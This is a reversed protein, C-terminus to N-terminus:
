GGVTFPASWAHAGWEIRLVGGKEGDQELSYRVTSAPETLPEHSLEIAPGDAEPDHQTGWIDPKHNFRLAWGEATKQLWLSYVGPYNEAVNETEITAEGFVLPVETKMKTAFDHTYRVIEGPQLTSLREYDEGEAKTQSFQISVSKEGFSLKTTDRNAEAEDDGGDSDGEAAAASAAKDEEAQEPTLLAVESNFMNNADVLTGVYRGEEPHLKMTMDIVSSGFNLIFEMVFTDGERKVERIPDVTMPPPLTFEALVFGEEDRATFDVYNDGRFTAVKLIWDGLIEEAQEVPLREVQEDEEEIPEAPKEGEAAVTEPTGTTVETTVEAATTAADGTAPGALAAQLEALKAQLAAEAETGVRAGEIPLDMAGGGVLVNGQLGDGEVLASVEIDMPQGGMDMMYFMVHRGDIVEIDEIVSEGLPTNLTAVLAGEGAAEVKLDAMQPADPLHVLVAWEGVLDELEAAPAPSVAAVMWFMLAGVLGPRFCNVAFRMLSDRWKLYGLPKGPSAGAEDHLIERPM